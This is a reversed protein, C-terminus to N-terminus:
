HNFENWYSHQQSICNCLIQLHELNIEFDCEQIRIEFVNDEQFLWISM